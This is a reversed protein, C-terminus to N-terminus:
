YHVFMRTWLYPLLMVYYKGNNVHTRITVVNIYVVSSCHKSLESDACVAGRLRRLM